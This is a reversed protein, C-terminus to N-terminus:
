KSAAELTRSRQREEEDVEEDNTSESEALEEALKAEFEEDSLRDEDSADAEEYKRRTKRGSRTTSPTSQRSSKASKPASGLSESSKRKLNVPRKPTKKELVKKGMMREFVNSGSIPSQSETADAKAKRTRAAIRLPVNDESSEEDKVAPRVVSSSRISRASQTNRANTLREVVKNELYKRADASKDSLINYLETQEATMPAYLVYERKRPLMHEVDAKVRRLLLPQLILHIKQVLEKKKQDAIFQETGEEDQLDSFDFWSEFAEWEKFIDPLLFNLLSWLEKLNNQLPTGSILIRTASKFKRLEQFLQSNFNKL